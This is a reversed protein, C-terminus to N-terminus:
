IKHGFLEKARKSRAKKEQETFVPKKSRITLGKSELFGKIIIVYNRKKPHTSIVVGTLTFFESRSLKGMIGLHSCEIDIDVGEFPLSYIMINAEREIDCLGACQYKEIKLKDSVNWKHKNIDKLYM